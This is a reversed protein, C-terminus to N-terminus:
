EGVSELVSWRGVQQRKSIAELQSRRLAAAPNMMLGVDSYLAKLVRASDSVNWLNGIVSPVGAAMFARAMSMPGEGEALRGAATGCGALVILRAGRFPIRSVDLASVIGTSGASVDPALLLMSLDSRNSELSHGGFHIVSASKALSVFQTDTADKGILLKSHLFLAAVERAEVASEPLRPLHQFISRDFAPDGLVLVDDLPLVAKRKAIDHLIAFTAGSPCISIIHNEVLFKGGENDYLAPFPVEYLVKDPIFVLEASNPLLKEIPSILAERLWALEALAQQSGNPLQSGAPNMVEALSHIRRTLESVSERSVASKLSDRGVLWLYVHDDVVAFEVLFKNLGLHAQIEPLVFPGRRDAGPFLDLLARARAHESYDLAKLPDGREVFQFRIMEDYAARAQDLYTERLEGAPLGEREREIEQIAADLDDEAADINGLAKYARARQRHIQIRLPYYEKEIYVQLTRTLSAVADTPSALGVLDAETLLADAEVRERLDKSDIQRAWERAGALDAMVGKTRGLQSLVRCRQLLAESVEWPNKGRLALDVMSNQFYLGIGPQGARLSADAFNFLINHLRSLNFIVARAALAKYREQWAEEQRGLDGLNESLLYRLYAENEPEGLAEFLALSKQYHDQAVAVSSRVSHALGIAWHIRAVLSGYRSEPLGALLPNLVGLGQDYQYVFYLSAGVYFGAWAEFPSGAQKLATRAKEFHPGATRGHHQVFEDLGRGFEQHGERLTHLRVSNAGGALARDIAAVSDQLMRDGNRAALAKGIGRALSLARGAEDTRDLFTDAWKRLLHEEAYLRAAQPFGRVVESLDPAVAGEVADDLKKKVSEWREAVSPQSLEDLHRLGESAWERDEEHAVYSKWAPIADEFLFLKELALARNFLAEPIGPGAQVARDAVGLALVLDYPSGIKQFRAIYAAALDSWIFANKGELSSARELLPVAKEPAKDLLELLALDALAQASPNKQAETEVARTIAGSEKSLSTNAQFSPPSHLFGGSL